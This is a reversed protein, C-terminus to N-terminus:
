NRLVSLYCSAQLVGVIDSPECLSVVFSANLLAIRVKNSKALFLVEEFAAFSDLGRIPDKEAYGLHNDTSVMIRLTNEDLVDDDDADAPVDDEGPSGSRQNEDDSMITLNATDRDIPGERAM